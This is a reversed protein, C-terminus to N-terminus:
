HNLVNAARGPFRPEAAGHCDMVMQLELGLADSARQDRAAGLQKNYM